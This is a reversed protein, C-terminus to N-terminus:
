FEFHFGHSVNRKLKIKGIRKSALGFLPAQECRRGDFRHQALCKTALSGLFKEARELPQILRTKRRQRVLFYLRFDVRDASLSPAFTRTTISVFM